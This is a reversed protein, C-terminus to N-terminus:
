REPGLPVTVVSSYEVPQGAMVAPRFTYAQLADLVLRDAEDSGSSAVLKVHTVLGDKGVRVYVRPDDLPGGALLASPLEPPEGTLRRPPVIREGEGDLSLIGTGDDLEPMPVATPRPAEAPGDTEPLAEEVVAPPPV